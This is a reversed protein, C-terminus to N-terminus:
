QILAIKVAHDRIEDSSQVLLAHVNPHKEILEDIRLSKSSVKNQRIYIAKIRGPFRRAIDIYFDADKEAADGLLIFPMVSYTNLIKEIMEIKHNRFAGSPRIGYDRLLIPGKPFENLDLFEKIVDYMNWPSHSVYFIPNQFGGNKGRSLDKFLQVTGELPLRQHANKFFTNYLMKLKFRSSVHTQLITDDVDTIIGFQAGSSPMMVEGVAKVAIHEKDVFGPLQLRLSLWDTTLLDPDPRWPRNVLFYGEYDTKTEFIQDLCEITVPVHKVEDTEFRRFSNLLNRM